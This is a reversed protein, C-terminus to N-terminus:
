HHLLSGPQVIDVSDVLLVPQNLDTEYYQSLARALLYSAIAYEGGAAAIRDTSANPTITLATAAILLVARPEAGGAIAKRNKTVVAKVTYSTSSPAAIDTPHLADAATGPTYRKLVVNGGAAAIAAKASAKEATYAM